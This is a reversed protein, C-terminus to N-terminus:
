VHFICMVESVNRKNGRNRTTHKHQHTHSEDGGSRSIILKAHVITYIYVYIIYYLLLYKILVDPRRPRHALVKRTWIHIRAFYAIRMRHLEIAYQARVNARPPARSVAVYADTTRAQRDSVMRSACASFIHAIKQHTPTQGVFWENTSTKRSSDLVSSFAYLKIQANM